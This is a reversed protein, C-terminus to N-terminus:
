NCFNKVCIGVTKRNEKDKLCKLAELNTKYKKNISLSNGCKDSYIVCDSDEICYGVFANYYNRKFDNRKILLDVLRGADELNASSIMTRDLIKEAKLTELKRSSIILFEGKGPFARVALCGETAIILETKVPFHSEFIVNNNKDYKSSGILVVPASEIQLIGKDLFEPNLKCCYAKSSFLVAVILSLSKM